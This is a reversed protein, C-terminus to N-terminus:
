EFIAQYFWQQSQEGRRKGDDEKLDKGVEKIRQVRSITEDRIKITDDKVNASGTDECDDKVNTSSTDKREIEEEKATECNNWTRGGEEEEDGVIIKDRNEHGSNIAM